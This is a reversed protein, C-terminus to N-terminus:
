DDGETTINNLMRKLLSLSLEKEEDTFDKILKEELMLITNWSDKKLLKGKETLSILKVRSDKNCPIRVIFKKKELQDLLRTLSSPKINMTKQIETQPICDEHWLYSMVKIQSDTLNYKSLSENKKIKFDHSIRHIFYGHHLLNSKKLSM